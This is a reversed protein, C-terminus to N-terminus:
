AADLGHESVNRAYEDLTILDRHKHVIFARLVENQYETDWGHAAAVEDFTKPALDPFLEVWIDARLTEFDAGNSYDFSSLLLNLMGRAYSHTTKSGRIIDNRTPVDDGWWSILAREVDERFVAETQNSRVLSAYSNRSLTLDIISVLSQIEEPNDTDIDIIISAM